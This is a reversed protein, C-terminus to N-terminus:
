WGQFCCPQKVLRGFKVPRPQAGPQGRQRSLINEDSGTGPLVFAPDPLDIRAVPVGCAAPKRLLTELVFAEVFVGFCKWDNAAIEGEILKRRFTVPALQKSGSGGLQLEGEFRRFVDGYFLKWAMGAVPRSRAVVI